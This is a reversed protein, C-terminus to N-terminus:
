KIVGNFHALLVLTLVILDIRILFAAFEGWEARTMGCCECGAAPNRRERCHRRRHDRHSFYEHPL